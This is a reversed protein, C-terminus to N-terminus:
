YMDPKINGLRDVKLRICHKQILVINSKFMKNLQNNQHFTDDEKIYIYPSCGHESGFESYVKSTTPNKYVIEQSVNQQVFYCKNGSIKVVKFLRKRDVNNWYEIFGEDNERVPINEEDQKPLYVLDFQSLTFLLKCGKTTEHDNQFYEKIIQEINKNGNKMSENILSVADYFSLIGYKRNGDKESIAFCYNGGTKVFISNDPYNKKDLPLLKVEGSGEKAYRVRISKIPHKRNENFKFIGEESFAEKVDNNYKKLHEKLINKIQNSIVKNDIFKVIDKKDALKSLPLRYTEDKGYFTEDHLSGRIRLYEEGTKIHKQILIQPKPKHSINILEVNKIAENPFNNWPIDVQRFSPMQKIIQERNEKSLSIFELLLEEDNGTFNEKIKDKNEKLWKQLEKNLNNLRQIHSQETCAVVLADLAHHRHDFRKSWKKINLCKKGDKDTIYEIWNEDCMKGMLEYRDKTIEKFKDNLKWHQKLYDTVAGTSTKVNETGVIKGLEEKVKISIYQTDKIQREVFNKPIEKLLLNKRKRGYFTKNVHEIYNDINPSISMYEWATRNGKDQNVNTECIVKNTLSDDFFRSKPIIHDVQYDNDSFLKSLPIPKIENLTYPSIYNQEEWLKYKEINSLTLPVGIEILKEKIRKNEKEKKLISSFMKNREEANNKLERALEIRIEDPKVKYQKWISKIVQLTENTIQEVIPNRLTYKDSNEPDEKKLQEYTKIQHYDNIGDYEEATHKGYYLMIAYSSMLGGGDFCDPYKLYHERLSDDILDDSEGNKIKSIKIKLNEDIENKFYKGAQMIPLVNNIAKSSLAGYSRKFRIKSIKIIFDNDYTNGNRELFKRITSNRESNIDYENDSNPNYVQYDEPQKEYKKMDFVISDDKLWNYLIRWFDILNNINNLEFKNFLEEGLAKKITIKTDNGKLKAKFHLGNLFDVKDKLHFKSRISKHSIEKHEQLYEYLIEKQEKTLPNDTYQKKGDVETVTNISLNNIQQWIKYEQFLPHSQPIVKLEKEFRCNSILKLQPKLPRQYYIIMEKIIYKLGEKLAQNRLKEQSEKKGPFIYNVINKLKDEPTGNLIPYYKAQQDWIADFERKYRSRLIVNNRIREWPNKQLKEYFLESIHPENKEKFENELKEFNIRWNSKKPLSFYVSTIEGTKKRRVTMSLEVEENEKLFDLITVGKYEEGVSNEVTVEYQPIEKGEDKKRKSKIKGVEKPKTKIKVKDVIVEYKKIIGEEQIEDNKAKKDNEDDDSGGAYGRLQNLNYLIRGFDKLDEVKNYIANKRLEFFELANLQKNKKAIPKINLTQLKESPPFDGEWKIFDPLMGLENLIYILKNRRLKYRKNLRRSGRYRRRDANRTLALGQEFNTKDEGLPIIRSGMGLIKGEKKEDDKEILAWGISNTGLDLGLIKKM